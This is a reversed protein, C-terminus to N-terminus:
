RREIGGSAMEAIVLTDPSSVVNTGVAVIKGDAVAASNAEIVREGDFIRVNHIVFANRPPAQAARAAAIVLSACVAAAIRVTRRVM